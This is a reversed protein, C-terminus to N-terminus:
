RVTREIRGQAFEVDRWLRIRERAAAKVRRELKTLYRYFDERVSKPEGERLMHIYESVAAIYGSLLAEYEESKEHYESLSQQHEDVYRNYRELDLVYTNKNIEVVRFIVSDESVLCPDRTPNNDGKTVYKRPYGGIVSQQIRHIIYETGILNPTQFLSSCNEGGKVDARSFRFTIIDGAKLSDAFPAPEFIVEDGCDIAPRMSGTCAIRVPFERIFIYVNEQIWQRSTKELERRNVYTHGRFYNGKHRNFSVIYEELGRGPFLMVVKRIIRDDLADPVYISLKM